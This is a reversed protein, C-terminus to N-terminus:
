ARKVFIRITNDTEIPTPRRYFSVNFDNLLLNSIIISVNMASSKYGRFISGDTQTNSDTQYYLPWNYPQIATRPTPIPSLIISSSKSNIHSLEFTCSSLLLKESFIRLTYSPNCRAGAPINFCWPTTIPFTAQIQITVRQAESVSIASIVNGRSDKLYLYLVCKTQYWTM